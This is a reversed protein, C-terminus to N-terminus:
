KKGSYRQIKVGSESVDLTMISPGVIQYYGEVGLLEVYYSTDLNFSIPCFGRENIDCVQDYYTNESNGVKKYIEPETGKALQKGNGDQFHWLLCSKGGYENDFCYNNAQIIVTREATIPLMSSYENNGPPWELIMMDGDGVYDTHPFTFTVSSKAPEAPTRIESSTLYRIFTITGNEDLKGYPMSGHWWEKSQTLSEVGIIYEGDIRAEAWEDPIEGTLIALTWSYLVKHDFGAETYYQAKKDIVCLIRDPPTDMKILKELHEQNVSLCNSTDFESKTYQEFNFDVLYSPGIYVNPPKPIMSSISVTYKKTDNHVRLKQQIIGDDDINHVRQSPQTIESSSLFEEIDLIAFGSTPIGILNEFTILVTADSNLAGNYQTSIDTICILEEPTKSKIAKDFIKQDIEICKSTDFKPKPLDFFISDFSSQIQMFTRGNKTIIEWDGGIPPLADEAELKEKDVIIYDIDMIRFFDPDDYKKETLDSENTFLLRLSETYKPVNVIKETFLNNGYSWSLTKEFVIKEDIEGVINVEVPSPFDNKIMIKIPKTHGFDKQLNKKKSTLENPTTEENSEDVDKENGNKKCPDEEGFALPIEFILKPGNFSGLKKDKCPDSIIIDLSFDIPYNKPYHNESCPGGDHTDGDNYGNYVCNAKWNIQYTGPKISPSSVILINEIVKNKEHPQLIIETLKETGLLFPAPHIPDKMSKSSIQYDVKTNYNGTNLTIKYTCVDGAELIIKKKFLDVLESNKCINNPLKPIIRITDQSAHSESTKEPEPIIEPDTKEDIVEITVTRPPLCFSNTSGGLFDCKTEYVFQYQGPAQDKPISIEYPIECIKGSEVLPFSFIKQSYWSINEGVVTVDNSTNSNGFASTTQTVELTEGPNAKINTWDSPSISGIDECNATAVSKNIIVPITDPIIPESEDLNGSGTKQIDRLIGKSTLKDGNKADPKVEIKLIMKDNIQGSNKAICSAVFDLGGIFKTIRCEEVISGDKELKISNVQNQDFYVRLKM